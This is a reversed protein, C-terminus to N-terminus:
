AAARRRRTKVRRRALVQHGAPMTITRRDLTRIVRLIEPQADRRTPPWLDYDWDLAAVGSGVEMAPFNPGAPIRVIFDGEALGGADLLGPELWTYATV